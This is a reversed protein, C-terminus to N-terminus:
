KDIKNPTNRSLSKMVLKIKSKLRHGLVKRLFAKLNELFVVRVVIEGALESISLGKVAYRMGQSYFFKSLYVNGIREYYKSMVLRTITAEQLQKKRTLSSYVGGLHQRYAAPQIDHHFHSKGYGGLISLLFADGNLVAHREPAFEKVVNRWVRTLTLVRAKEMAVDFEDYDKRVDDLMRSKTTVKGHQNIISADHGSIVYEPHSELFDVQKQIKTPDTWYDDGECFAIYKASSTGHLFSSPKKGASYQNKTQLITKIIRPYSLQYREVIERTGDTSADDHIWIEIPFNTEQMLFGDIAEGIYDKHNYTICWVSVVPPGCQGWTKMIKHETRQIVKLREGYGCASIQL